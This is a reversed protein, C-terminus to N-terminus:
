GPLTHYLRPWTNSESAGPAVLGAIARKDTARVVRICLAIYVSLTVLKRAAFSAATVGKFQSATVRPAFRDTGGVQESFFRM